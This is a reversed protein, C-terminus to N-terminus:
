SKLDQGIPFYILEPDYALISITEVERIRWPKSLCLTILM